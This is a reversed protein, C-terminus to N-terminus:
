VEERDNLFYKGIIFVYKGWLKIEIIIIVKVYLVILVLDCIKFMM